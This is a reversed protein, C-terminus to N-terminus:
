DKASEDRSLVKLFDELNESKDHFFEVAVILLFQSKLKM